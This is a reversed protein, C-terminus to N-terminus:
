RPFNVNALMAKNKSIARIPANLSDVFTQWLMTGFMVFVPYPITTERVQFVGAGHLLQFVMATLVPLFAWVFGFATQRYRARLDRVVLRWALERSAVLDRWMTAVLRGPTRLQSEPSYVVVDSQPKKM